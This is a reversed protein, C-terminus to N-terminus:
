FDGDTFLMGIMFLLDAGFIVLGAAAAIAIVAVAPRARRVEVRSVESVPVSIPESPPSTRASTYGHISDGVITPRYVWVQSEDSLTVRVRSSGDSVSRPPIERSSVCGALVLLVVIAAFPRPASHDPPM